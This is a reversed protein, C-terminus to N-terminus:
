ARMRNTRFLGHGLDYAVSTEAAATAAFSWCTGWPSQQKVESVYCKGDMDRLDAQPPLGSM